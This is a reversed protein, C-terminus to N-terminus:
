AGPKWIMLFLAIAILLHTAGEGIMLKRAAASAEADSELVSSPDIAEARAALVTVAPRVAGHMAGVLLIWVVFSASVWSDAMSFADESVTVAVIGLVLVAYISYESIKTVSTTTELIGRAVGAPSRFAKAHYLGHTIVGGFGILAAAIHTLLVIQFLTGM